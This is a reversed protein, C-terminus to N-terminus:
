LAYLADEADGVGSMAHIVDQISFRSIPQERLTVLVAQAKILAKLLEDYKDSCSLHDLAKM